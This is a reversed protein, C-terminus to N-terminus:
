ESRTSPPASRAHKGVQFALPGDPTSVMVNVLDPALDTRPQVIIGRATLQAGWLRDRLAPLNTVLKNASHDSPSRHEAPLSYSQWWAAYYEPDNTRMAAWGLIHALYELHWPNMSLPIPTGDMQYTVAAGAHSKQYIWHVGREDRVRCALLWQCFKLASQEIRDDPACALYDLMAETAICGMWPKVILNMVAHVGVTGGQDAFSGDPLQTSALRLLAERARDLDGPDGFYRYLYVLGRIYAADRGFSRRPWNARDWSYASETVSRATDLLYPDGTELYAAVMGSTRQMPLSQAPPNYAHMRVAFLAKDVAVDALHYASRLALDYDQSEGTLYAAVFQAQPAEGEWGPEPASSSRQVAGDDFCGALHCTRYYAIAEEVSAFTQDRVPLVSADCLDESLGYWWDPLLYVAVDPEAPGLSAVMRVTRGMGKPIRHDQARSLYPSGTRSRAPEGALAEVGEYPQYICMKGDRWARGPHQDSVLNGAAWSDLSVREWHWRHRGTIPEPQTPWDGGQSRFGIIPTVGEVVGGETFFRGNVHRMSLEIVGNAYCRALVEGRVHNHKHFWPYEARNTAALKAEPSEHREWYVPITGAARITRCVPGDDVVEMTVWQWWHCSGSVMLGMRLGLTANDQSLVLEDVEWPILTEYRKDLTTLKAKPGQYAGRAPQGPRFAVQSGSSGCAFLLVRRPDRRGDVQPWHGVPQIQTALDAYVPSSSMGRLLPLSLRRAQANASGLIRHAHLKGILQDQDYALRPSNATNLACGAMCCLCATQTAFRLFHRM